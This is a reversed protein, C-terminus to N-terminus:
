CVAEECVLEEWVVVEVAVFWGGGLKGRWRAM